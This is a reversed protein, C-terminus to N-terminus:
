FQPHDMYFCLFSITVLPPVFFFFSPALSPFPSFLFFFVLSFSSVYFFLLFTSVTAWGGTELVEWGDGDTKGGVITVGLLDEKKGRPL